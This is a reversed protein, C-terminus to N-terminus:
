HRMESGIVPAWPLLARILWTQPLPFSCEAAEVGPSFTIAVSPPPPGRPPSLTPPCVYTRQVATLSGRAVGTATNQTRLRRHRRGLRGCGSLWSIVSRHLFRECVGLEDSRVLHSTDGTKLCAAVQIPLATQNYLILWCLNMSKPNATPKAPITWYIEWAGRSSSERGARPASM